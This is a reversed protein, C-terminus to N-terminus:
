AAKESFLALDLFDDLELIAVDVRVGDRLDGQQQSAFRKGYTIRRV